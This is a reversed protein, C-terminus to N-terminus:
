VGALRLGARALLVVSSGVCISLVLTRMIRQSRASRIVFRALWFGLLSFPVLFLGRVVDDWGFEGFAALATLSVCAGILLITNLTARLQGPPVNQLALAFPPGGAATITGMFGSAVGAIMMTRVSPMFAPGILSLVVGAIIALAFVIEFLTLSLSALLAAALIAAPIRAGVGAVVLPVKVDRFDRVASLLSVLTGLFIVTSPVFEPDILVLLPSAILGFGIGASSQIIAALLIAVSSLVLEFLTHDFM